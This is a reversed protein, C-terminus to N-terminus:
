KIAAVSKTKSERSIIESQFVPVVRPVAMRAMLIQDRISVSSDHALHM